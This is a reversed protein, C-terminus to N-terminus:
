EICAITIGHPYSLQDQVRDRNRIGREATGVPQMSRKRQARYNLQLGIGAEPSQAFGVAAIRRQGAQFGHPLTDGPHVRELKGTQVAVQRGLGFLM